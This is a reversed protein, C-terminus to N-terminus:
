YFFNIFNEPLSNFIITFSVNAQDVNRNDSISDITRAHGDYIGNLSILLVFVILIYVKFKITM